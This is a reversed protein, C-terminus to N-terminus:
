VNDHPDGNMVTMVIPKRCQINGDIIQSRQAIMENEENSRM